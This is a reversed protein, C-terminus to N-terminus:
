IKTVRGTFKYGFNRITLILKPHSPDDEIKKRLKGVLVDVSRDNISYDRQSLYQLIRDRNLIGAPNRIFLELLRFEHSTLTIKKGYPSVLESALLDFQWGDFQYKQNDGGDLESKKNGHSRRRLLSHIRALLQREDYPKTVYDDAGIELGIITDIPKNKGTLMIIGIDSVSRLERALAIGDTGPLMVDLIVVDPQDEKFIRWMEKGDVATSVLYGERKLYTGLSRCIRKDDDVILIHAAETM